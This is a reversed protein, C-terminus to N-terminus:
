LLTKDKVEIEAIQLTGIGKLIERAKKVGAKTM